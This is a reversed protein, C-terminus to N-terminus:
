KAPNGKVIAGDPVSKVVVSGMGVLAKAGIHLGERITANGSIYAEEGTSSSGFMITEGVVFTNAGMQVNHSIFCLNDIKSGHHIVTDDIAGRAIVTNAGVQVGDELVVGGFQPITAPSGDPKRMTSLGDTGIVANERIIVNNGIRVRCLLKVGSGIYCNDGVVVDSDIYASPFLRVNRGIVAGQAIFAGNVMEYECPEPYYTINNDSFFIAYAQRPDHATIVVHRHKIEAPIYVGEPWFVICHDVTLLAAAEAVHAETCFMVTNSEPKSLSSPATVTFDSNSEYRNANVKFFHRAM